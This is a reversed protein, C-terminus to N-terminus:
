TYLNDMSREKDWEPTPAFYGPELLHQKVAEENLTFGLGPGEPVKIFGKNLIPKEVGDVLSDWWPIDVSHNELVLFGETAAACHVNAFNCVPSGAMHMAMPVGYKQAMDGIRKTELIGGSTSLDPQIVDVAHRSCLQEFPEILWIDEGTCIPVDVTDAIQKLLDTQYWPLPDEMWALNCKEFARALRILSNMGMSGFHDTSIPIDWGVVERVGMIYNAMLEVGKQTLEVGTLTHERGREAQAPGSITGPVNRLHGYIGIDMKLWTFGMEIRKRMREGFVKPDNADPTDCYCRIRDRYKGGLMQYVPVNYAKGALDWLAEEVAVVGGAKRGIGGFQKIKKFIKEINCPNEGLIRSKLFLAYTKSAGDRVEGYGSIGQNTDIRIIPCTFPARALVAVRLDTIRLESPKSNTNVNQPIAELLSEPWFSAALAGATGALFQRRKLAQKVYSKMTKQGKMSTWGAWL